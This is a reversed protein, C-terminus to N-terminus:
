GRREAELVRKLNAVFLRNRKPVMLGMLPAMLKMWGSIAIQVRRSHRTGGAIPEFSYTLTTAMPGAVSRMVERRNQEFAVVEAISESVGMFPKFRLRWRTGVGIPGESVKKAELIDTHWRPDNSTDAVYNFV